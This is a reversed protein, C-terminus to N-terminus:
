GRVVPQLGAGPKLARMPRGLRAIGPFGQGVVLQEAQAKAVQLQDDVIRFQLFGNFAQVALEVRASYAEPRMAPQRLLPKGGISYRPDGDWKVQRVPAEHADLPAEHPLHLAAVAVPQHPNQAM